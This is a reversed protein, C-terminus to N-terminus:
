ARIRFSFNEDSFHLHFPAYSSFIDFDKHIANNRIFWNMKMYEYPAFATTSTYRRYYVEKYDSRCNSCVHKIVFHGWAQGWMFYPPSRVISSMTMPDFGQEDIMGELALHYM